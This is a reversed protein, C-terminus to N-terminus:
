MENSQTKQRSYRVSETTSSIVEGSGMKTRRKPIENTKKLRTCIKAVLLNHDFNIDAGPMTQVDKM